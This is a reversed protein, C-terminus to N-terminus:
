PSALANATQKEWGHWSILSPNNKPSDPWRVTVASALVDQQFKSDSHIRHAPQAFVRVGNGSYVEVPQIPRSFCLWRLWTDRYRVPMLWIELTESALFTQREEGTATTWQVPVAKPGALVVKTGFPGAYSSCFHHGWPFQNQEYQAIQWGHPLRAVLKSLAREQLRKGDDGAETELTLALISALLSATRM